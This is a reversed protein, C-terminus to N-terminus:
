ENYKMFIANLWSTKQLDRQAVGSGQVSARPTGSGPEENVADKPVTRAYSCGM